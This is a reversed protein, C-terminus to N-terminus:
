ATAEKIENNLEIIRIIREQEEAPLEHRLRRSLVSESINLLEALRWQKIDCELMKARVMINNM